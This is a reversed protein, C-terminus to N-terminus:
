WKTNNDDPNGLPASIIARKLELSNRLKIIKKAKELADEESIDNPDKEYISPDTQGLEYLQQQLEYTAKETVPAQMEQGELEMAMERIDINGDDVGLHGAVLSESSFMDGDGEDCVSRFENALNKGEHSFRWKRDSTISYYGFLRGPDQFLFCFKQPRSLFFGGKTNEALFDYRRLLRPINVEPDIVEFIDSPYQKKEQYFAEVRVIAKDVFEKAQQIDARNLMEGIYISSGSLLIISVFVIMVKLSYLVRFSGIKGTIIWHYIFYFLPMIIGTAMVFPLIYILKGVKAADWSYEKYLGGVYPMIHEISGRGTLAFFVIGFVLMGIGLTFWMKFRNPYLYAGIMLTVLTSLWIYFGIIFPEYGYTRFDSIESLTFNESAVCLVCLIIALAVPRLFEKSRYVAIGLLISIVLYLTYFTLYFHTCLDVSSSFVCVEFAQSLYFGYAGLCIISWLVCLLLGIM